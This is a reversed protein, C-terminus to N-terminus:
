QGAASRVDELYCGQLTKRLRTVPRSPVDLDRCQQSIADGTVAAWRDPFRGALREAVVQWHASSEAGMVALVDALVDRAPVDGALPLTGAASRAAYARRGIQDAADGDIDFTKVIRAERGFGVAWGIGKDDFAFVTANIGRKFANTGLVMDNSQWDMVKLCFRMAVNACIATPLAKADPRQTELILMIGLAPGRRIVQLCLEEFEAQVRKNIFAEQCESVAFLLPHLGLSKRRALQPTVKNQPCQGKAALDSIVRARRDLEAHVKRLDALCAVITEDDTGSGYAHAVKELSRLDGTGKLEWVHLEALPDLAAALLANRIAQTKGMRSISAVLLNAYMLTLSVPRLREDFGFPMADFLSFKAATLLPWPPQRVTNLSEDCIYLVLRGPHQAQDGEPWVCALPRRLAAALKDREKAVEDVTVGPPLDLVALWGRGSRGVGPAIFDLPGDAIAKALASIGLVALAATISDRTPPAIEPALEASPILATGPKKGHHALILVVGAALPILGWRPTFRLVVLAAALATVAYLLAVRSRRKRTAEIEGHYKSALLIQERSGHALAASMMEYGPQHHVWRHGRGALVFVGRLAFWLTRVLYFGSRTGHYAAAHGYRVAHYRATERLDDLNSWPLVPRLEQEYTDPAPDDPEPQRPFNLVTM